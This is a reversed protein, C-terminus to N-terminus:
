NAKELLWARETNGEMMEIISRQRKYDIRAKKLQEVATQNVKM